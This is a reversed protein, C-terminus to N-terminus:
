PAPTITRETVNRDQSSVTGSAGTDGCALVGASLERCGAAVGDPLTAVRSAAIGRKELESLILRVRRESLRENYDPDSAPKEISAHGSLQVKLSADSKLALVLRELSAQSDASAPATAAPRTTGARRRTRFEMRLVDGLVTSPKPPKDKKPEKGPEKCAFGEPVLPPECCRGGWAQREPPCDKKEPPPASKKCRNGVVTEGPGCCRFDMMAIRAPPCCDQANDISGRCCQGEFDKSGAARWGPPCSTKEKRSSCGLRKCIAQLRPDRASQLGEERGLRVGTGRRSHGRLYGARRVCPDSRGSCWRGSRGSQQVVHALEHALLRQGASSAPQFQGAGFVVHSGFTYARAHFDQASQAAQGDTHVRVPALDAGLRPEFFTRLGRPLPQGGGALPQAPAPTAAAPGEAKRQVGREEEQECEACMRQVSAAAPMPAAADGRTVADAVRDAEREAPDQPHSVPVSTALRHWANGAAPTRQVRPAHPRPAAMGIRLAPHHHQLAAFV